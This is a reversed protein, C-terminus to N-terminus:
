LLECFIFQYLRVFNKRCAYIRRFCHLLIWVDNDEIRFINYTISKGQSQKM